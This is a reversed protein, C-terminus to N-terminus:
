HLREVEAVFREGRDAYSKFMDFSAAAPSLIVVDGPQATSLFRSFIKAFPQYKEDAGARIKAFTAQEADTDVVLIKPAKFTSDADQETLKGFTTTIERAMKDRISGYIVLTKIDRKGGNHRYIERAIDACNAGKDSGGILIIKPETFSNIAAITSGPTTAISDDYFKVGNVDRVFKLRHPLGHFGALGAKIASAIKIFKVLEPTANPQLFEPALTAFVADIAASANRLNHQGPLQLENISCIKQEALYFNHDDFHVFQTAMSDAINFAIKQSQAAQAFKRIRDNQTNFIAFDAPKQYAFIHSKATAYDNFDRHVNLHDPELMTFVGVHPSQTLDWLQFSSMEYVVIDGAGIQDLQSLAPVGINGLLFVQREPQNDAFFARLTAAILSCTTGKGKSGTVGVIPALCHAFFYKTSSSLQANDSPIKTPPVSPSRLVLDFGHIQAFNGGFNAFKAVAEPLQFTPNEDFITIEAEPFKAHFYDLNGRGEVGFGAIAITRYTEESHSMNRM